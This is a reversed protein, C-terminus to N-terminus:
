EGWESERHALLRNWDDKSVPVAKFEKLKGSSDAQATIVTKFGDPFIHHPIMGSKTAVEVKAANGESTVASLPKM